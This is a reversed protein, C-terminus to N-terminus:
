PLEALVVDFRYVIPRGSIREGTPIAGIEAYSANDRATVVETIMVDRVRWQPM